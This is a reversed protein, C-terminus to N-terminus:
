SLVRPLVARQIGFQEQYFRLAALNTASAQVSLHLRLKPHRRSAYRLLGIDALIAADVGLAAASDVVECARAWTDPGPFTNIAM